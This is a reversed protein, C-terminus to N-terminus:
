AAPPPIPPPVPPPIPPPATPRRALVLLTMDDHPKAAGCHVLVDAQVKQLLDPDALHRHGELVGQLRAEGYECDRADFAESVGDTYVFLRDGPALFAEVEQFRVDPV